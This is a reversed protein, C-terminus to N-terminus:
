ALPYVRKSLLIITIFRVQHGHAHELNDLFRNVLKKAHKPLRINRKPPSPSIHEMPTQYSRHDTYIPSHVRQYVLPENEIMTRYSTSPLYPSSLSEVIPQNRPRISHTNVIAPLTEEDSSYFPYDDETLIYSRPYSIMPRNRRFGILDSM